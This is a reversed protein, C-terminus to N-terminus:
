VFPWQSDHPVLAVGLACVGAVDLALNEERSYGQYIFLCVGVAFLVGVFFFGVIPSNYYASLSDRTARMVAFHGAVMVIPFAIALVGMIFRLWHYTHYM